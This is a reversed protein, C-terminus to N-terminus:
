LIVNKHLFTWINVDASRDLAAQMMCWGLALDPLQGCAPCLSGADRSLAIIALSLLSFVIEVPGHYYHLISM